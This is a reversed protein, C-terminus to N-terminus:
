ARGLFREGYAAALERFRQGKQRGALVDLAEAARAAADAFEAADKARELRMALPDADPGISDHLLRTLAGLAQAPTEGPAAVPAAPPPAPPQPAKAVVFGQDVLAQLSAEVDPIGGFRALLDGVSTAGDVLILLTRLKQPLGHTRAKVEELGKASKALLLTLDV